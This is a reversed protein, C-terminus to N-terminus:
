EQDPGVPHLRMDQYREVNFGTQSKEQLRREDAERSQKPDISIRVEMPVKAPKYITAVGPQSFIYQRTREWLREILVAANREYEPVLTLYEDM